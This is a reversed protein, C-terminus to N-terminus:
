FQLKVNFGFNRTSPLMFSDFGQYYNSMVEASLEPDFPAKCYIMWLNKGVFGITMRVKDRFWKKPLTYNLSLEQLRVNTADYTYYAANGSIVSLYKQADVMGENIKVGGADRLKASRESVGYQDLYSETASMVIGGLRASFTMGLDLGKWGFHTNWGMNAKPFISGLFTKKEEVSLGASPDDYIYGNFDRKLLHYAFVDGMSGGERLILKADLGGFGGKEIEDGMEILEGTLPNRVGDVLSIIKNENWTLTYNTSFSFDGWENNYGLAMEIGQNLINGSQVPTDVYGSAPPLKAYFTQNYTNSRYYTLDFNIHNLFRANVGVEWSKTREPKLDLNPYTSSSSWSGSEGDYKYYVKTMYRDYSNGVETYSGRVKLFSLWKPANFM